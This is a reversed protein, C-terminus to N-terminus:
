PCRRGAGGPGRGRAPWGPDSLYTFGPRTHLSRPKGGPRRAAAGPRRIGPPPAM